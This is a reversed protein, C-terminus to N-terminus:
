TKFLWLANSFAVVQLAAEPPLYHASLLGILIVCKVTLVNRAGQQM